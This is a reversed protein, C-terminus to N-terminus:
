ATEAVEVEARGDETADADLEPLEIDEEAISMGPVRSHLPIVLEAARKRGYKAVAADMLREWRQYLLTYLRNRLLILPYNRRVQSRPRLQPEVAENVLEWAIDGLEEAETSTMGVPGGLVQPYDVFLKEILAGDNIYNAKGRGERINSVRAAPIIKRTVGLDATHLGLERLDMLREFPTQDPPVEVFGTVDLHAYHVARALRDLSEFEEPRLNVRSALEVLDNRVQALSAAVNAVILLSGGQWPKLASEPISEAQPGFAEILATMRPTRRLPSDPRLTTSVLSM